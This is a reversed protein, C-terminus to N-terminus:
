SLSRTRVPISNLAVIREHYSLSKAIQFCLIEFELLKQTPYHRICKESFVIAAIQFVRSCNKRCSPDHLSQFEGSQILIQPFKKEYALTSLVLICIEKRLSTVQDIRKLFPVEQVPRSLGHHPGSHCKRLGFQFNSEVVVAEPQALLIRLYVCNM